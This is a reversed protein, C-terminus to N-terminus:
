IHLLIWNGGMKGERWGNLESEGVGEEWGGRKEGKKKTIHPSLEVHSLVRIIQTKGERWKM